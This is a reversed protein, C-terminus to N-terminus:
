PGSQLSRLIGLKPPGLHRSPPSASVPFSHTGDPTLALTAKVPSNRTPQPLHRPCAHFSTTFSTGTVPPGKTGWTTVLNARSGRGQWASGLATGELGPSSGAFSPTCPPRRASQRSEDHKLSIERIEHLSAALVMCMARTIADHAESSHPRDGRLGLAM